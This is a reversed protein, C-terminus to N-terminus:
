GQPEVGALVPGTSPTHGLTNVVVVGAVALLGGLLSLLRPVEGLWIWAILIAMAPILYLMAATRSAPAHSLVYAWTMYSLAGPFIGLYVVALTGQWPAMAVTHLLGGSFPMMLLTGFWISYATFELPRYRDLYRKQQVLYIGSTLSSALILLAHPSLRVGGGEGIAIVAAGSFSLAIGAWGWLTFREHLLFSAFIAAWVPTLSILLSATGAPVTTEGYNLALNYFTIGLFGTLAFGPIDRLELRRFNSVAAYVALVASAVLFRVIALHGPSYSALAARIGAFASAWFLLAVILALLVRPTLFVKM